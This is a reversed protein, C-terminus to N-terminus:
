SVISYNLPPNVCLRDHEQRSRAMDRSYSKSLRHGTAAMGRGHWVKRASARYPSPQAGLLDDKYCAGQGQRAMAALRDGAASRGRSRDPSARLPM